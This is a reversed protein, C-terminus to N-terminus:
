RDGVPGRGARDVGLLPEDLNRDVRRRERRERLLRAPLRVLGGAATLQLPAVVVDAALHAECLLAPAHGSAYRAEAHEGCQRRGCAGDGPRRPADSRRQPNASHSTRGVRSPTFTVDRRYTRTFTVNQWSPAPRRLAFQSVYNRLRLSEM